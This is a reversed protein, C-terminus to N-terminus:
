STFKANDNEKLRRCAEYLIWVSHVTMPHGSYYKQPLGLEGAAWNVWQRAIMGSFRNNLIDDIIQDTPRVSEAVSSNELDEKYIKTTKDKFPWM